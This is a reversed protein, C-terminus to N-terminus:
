SDSVIRLISILFGALLRPCYQVIKSQTCTLLCLKLLGIFLFRFSNQPNFAVTWKRVCKLPWERTWADLQESCFSDHSFIRKKTQFTNAVKVKLHLIRIKRYRLVRNLSLFLYVPFTLYLTSSVKSVNQWDLKLKLTMLIAFKKSALHFSSSYIEHLSLCRSM